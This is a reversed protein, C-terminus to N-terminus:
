YTLIDDGLAGASTTYGRLIVTLDDNFDFFTHGNRKEAYTQVIQKGSLDQGVLLEALVLLDNGRGFDRVVVRGTSTQDFQFDDAGAGGFYTDAGGGPAFYDVGSGGYITDDAAGGFLADNGGGGYLTNIGSGGYIFDRAAGGYLEDRGTDGSLSDLGAGGFITDGGGGGFLFDDGGDGTVSDLGAGGYLYDRDGGGFLTDRGADGGLFDQGNGGFLTDSGGFGYATDSLDGGRIIDNKDTLVPLADGFPGNPDGDVAQFFPRAAINIRDGTFQVIDTDWFTVKDITGRIFAGDLNFDGDLRFRMDAAQLIVRTETEKTIEWGTVPIAMDISAKARFRGM